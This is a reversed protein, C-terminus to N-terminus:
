VESARPTDGTVMIQSHRLALPHRSLASLLPSGHSGFSPLLYILQGLGREFESAILACGKEVFSARAIVGQPTFNFGLNEILLLRALEEFLRRELVSRFQNCIASGFRSLNASIFFWAKHHSCLKTGVFDKRPKARASHAFDIAGAICPQLALDSDFDQTGSEGRISFPKAAELLFSAGGACEIMGVYKGDKVNARVVIRRIYYGFQQFALCQACYDAGRCQLLTFCNIIRALDRVPEGSSVIFSYDM